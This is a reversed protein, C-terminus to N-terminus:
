ALLEVMEVMEAEEEKEKLGEVASVLVFGAGVISKGGGVAGYHSYTQSSSLLSPPYV